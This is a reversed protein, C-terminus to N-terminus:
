PRIKFSTNVLTKLVRCPKHSQNLLVYKGLVAPLLVTESFKLNFERGPTEKSQIIVKDGEVMSLVHPLGKTEDEITKEFEFRRVEFVLKDFRGIVYEAWGKGRRVCKPKQILHKKVWATTRYPHRRVM